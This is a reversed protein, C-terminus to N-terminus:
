VLIIWFYVESIEKYNAALLMKRTEEVAHYPSPSANVYDLFERATAASQMARLPIRSVRSLM